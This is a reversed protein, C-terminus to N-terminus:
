ERYYLMISISQPGVAANSWLALYLSGTTIDAITGATGANYYATRNVITKKQRTITAMEPTTDYLSDWIIDYRDKSDYSWPSVQDASDQTPSVSPAAGNPQKDYLFMWRLYGSTIFWQLYDM